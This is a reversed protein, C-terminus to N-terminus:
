FQFFTFWQLYVISLQLQLQLHLYVISLQISATKKTNEIHLCGICKVETVLTWVCFVHAGVEGRIQIGHAGIQGCTYRKNILQKKRLISIKEYLHEIRITLNCIM